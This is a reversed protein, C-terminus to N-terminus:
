LDFPLSYGDFLLFCTFVSWEFSKVSDIESVLKEMGKLIEEVAAGEKFKVIVLHKFDGM